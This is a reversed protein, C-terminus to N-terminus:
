RIALGSLGVIIMIAFIISMYFIFLFGRLMYKIALAKNESIVKLACFILGICM